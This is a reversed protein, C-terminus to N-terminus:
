PEFSWFDNLVVSDNEGFGIYGKGNITFSVANERSGNPIDGRKYWVNRGADYEVIDSIVHGGTIEGQFHRGTSVFFRNDVCLAVGNERGYDPISKLVKWTDNDPFYEWWDNLNATQYGTGFYIHEDNCCSVAGGRALDPFYNLLYWKDEAISYKWFEHTWGKGDFGAGVYVNKKYVFSVCADTFQSPLSAKQTWHNTVPDFSWFDKLYAKSYAYSYRLDYGLGVYAIGDVVAAMAKVRATGPFSAKQTWKDSDPDYEWCDNLAGSRADTRGLAVYGKGNIAFGVASARGKASMTHRPQFIIDSYPSKSAGECSALMFIVFFGSIIKFLYRQNNIM